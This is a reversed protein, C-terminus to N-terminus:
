ERQKAAPNLPECVQNETFAKQTLLFPKFTNRKYEHNMERKGVNYKDKDFTAQVGYASLYKYVHEM